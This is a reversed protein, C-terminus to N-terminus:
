NRFWLLRGKETFGDWTRQLFGSEPQSVGEFDKFFSLHVGIAGAIM